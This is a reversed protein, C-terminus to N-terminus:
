IFLKEVSMIKKQEDASYIGYFMEDSGYVRCIGDGIGAGKQKPDYEKIMEFPLKNGNKLLKMGDPLVRVAPYKDLIIDVPTVIGALANEEKLARIEDLTFSDEVSFRGVRTRELSQMCGGCGLAKGIDHCLTRIYTGKSCLVRFKVAKYSDPEGATTIKEKLSNHLGNLEDEDMDLIEIEEITIKRSKREVEIGERALEYLKKGNVKLASYMPPVQMIDGVFEMITQRISSDSLDQSQEHSDSLLKGSIDQTDTTMGLRMVAVYEKQSDTLLDVLKTANGICVPLVGVADPDLTGTHGIKKINLIKRLRAVVVFSTYGAEKYVNIVGNM